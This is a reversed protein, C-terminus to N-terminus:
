RAQRAELVEALDAIAELMTSGSGIPRTLYIGNEDGEYDYTGAEWAQWEGSAQSVEVDMENFHFIKNTM